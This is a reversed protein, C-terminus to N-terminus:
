KLMQAIENLDDEDITQLEMLNHLTAGIGIPAMKSPNVDTVGLMAEGGSNM